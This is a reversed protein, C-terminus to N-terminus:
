GVGAGYNTTFGPAQQPPQMMPQLAQLMAYLNASKAENGLQMLDRASQAGVGTQYMSAAAPFHAGQIQAAAPAYAQYMSAQSQPVVAQATQALDWPNQQLQNLFGLQAGYMSAEAGQRGQMGAAQVYPTQQAYPTPTWANSQM